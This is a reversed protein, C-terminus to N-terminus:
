YRAIIFWYILSACEVKVGLYFFSFSSFFLIYLDLMTIGQLNMSKGFTLTLVNPIQQGATDINSHRSAQVSKEGGVGQLKDCLFSSAIVEPFFYFIAPHVLM